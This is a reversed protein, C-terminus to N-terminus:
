SVGRLCNVFNTSSMDNVVTSLGGRDDCDSTLGEGWPIRGGKSPEMGLEGIGEKRGLSSQYMCVCM